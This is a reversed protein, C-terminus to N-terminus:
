GETPTVTNGHQVLEAFLAEPPVPFKSCCLCHPKQMEESCVSCLSIDFEGSMCAACAAVYLDEKVSICLFENTPTNCGCCCEFKTPSRARIRAMGGLGAFAVFELGDLSQASFRMAVCKDDDNSKGTTTDM